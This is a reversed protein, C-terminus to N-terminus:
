ATARIDDFEVVWTSDADDAMYVEFAAAQFKKPM